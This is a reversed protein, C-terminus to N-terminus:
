GAALTPERRTRQLSLTFLRIAMIEAWVFWVGIFLRQLVGNLEDVEIIKAVVIWSVLGLLVAFRFVRSLAYVTSWEPLDKLRRSIMFVSIIAAIFGAVGTLNHM